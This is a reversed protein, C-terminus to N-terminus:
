PAPRLKLDCITNNEEKEILCKEGERLLCTIKGLVQERKKVGQSGLIRGLPHSQSSPRFSMLIVIGLDFHTKMTKKQM